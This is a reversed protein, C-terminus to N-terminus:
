SLAHRASNIQKQPPFHLGARDLVASRATSASGSLFYIQAITDHSMKNQEYPVANVRCLDIPNKFGALLKIGKLVM